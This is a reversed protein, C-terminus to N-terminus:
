NKGMIGCKRQRKATNIGTSAKAMGSTVPSNDKTVTGLRTRLSGKDTCADMRSSGRSYPVMRTSTSVTGMSKGM